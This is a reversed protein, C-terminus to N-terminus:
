KPTSTESGERCSFHRGILDEDSYASLTKHVDAETCGDRLSTQYTEQIVKAALHAKSFHVALRHLDADEDAISRQERFVTEGSEAEVVELTVYEGKDVHFTFILEAPRCASLSQYGSHAYLYASHISALSVGTQPNKLAKPWSVGSESSLCVTKATVIRQAAEKELTACQTNPTLGWRCATAGQGSLPASFLLVNAFFNRSWTKM